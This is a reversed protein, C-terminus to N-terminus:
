KLFLYAIGFVMGWGAASMVIWVVVCIRTPLKNEREIYNQINDIMAPLNLFEPSTELGQFIWCDHLYIQSPQKSDGERYVIEKYDLCNRRTYYNRSWSHFHYESRWIPIIQTGPERRRHLAYGLSHLLYDWCTRDNNRDYNFNKPWNKEAM